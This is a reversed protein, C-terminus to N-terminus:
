ISQLFPSYATTFMQKRIKIKVPSCVRSDVKDLQQLNDSKMARSLHSVM